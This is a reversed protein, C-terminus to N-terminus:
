GRFQVAIMEQLRSAFNKCTICLVSRSGAKGIINGLEEKNGFRIPIVSKKNCLNNFINVTSDAADQAIIVMRVNKGKLAKECMEGGSVVKNAKAALGIFSYIREEDNM